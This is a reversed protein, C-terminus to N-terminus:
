RQGNPRMRVSADVSSAARTAKLLVQELASLYELFRARGHNTLRCRTTPRKARMDKKVTICGAEELVQLHRNLNGDTLQCLSKLESFVLGGAHAALSTVIALRAKEHFLRDLGAYDFAGPEGDLEIM